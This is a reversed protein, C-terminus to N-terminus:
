QRACEIERATRAWAKWDHTKPRGIPDYQHREMIALPPPSDVATVGKRSWWHAFHQSGHKSRHNKTTTHRHSTFPSTFQYLIRPPTTIRQNIQLNSTLTVIFNHMCSLPPTSTLKAAPWDSHVVTVQSIPGYLKLTDTTGEDLMCLVPIWTCSCTM